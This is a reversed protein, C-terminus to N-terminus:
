PCREVATVTKCNDGALSCDTLFTILLNSPFAVQSYVLPHPKVRKGAIESFMHNQERCPTFDRYSFVRGLTPSNDRSDFLIIERTHPSDDYLGSQLMMEEAYFGIGENAGSDYYYRRIPDPNKWSACLQGYHGVTGEHVIQIRPDMADAVWFYGATPSPPLWTDYEM